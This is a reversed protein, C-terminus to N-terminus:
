TVSFEIVIVLKSLQCFLLHKGSSKMFMNMNKKMSQSQVTCILDKLSPFALNNELTMLSVPVVFIPFLRQYSPTMEEPSDVTVTKRTIYLTM